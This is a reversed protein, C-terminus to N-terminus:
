AAQDTDEYRVSRCLYIGKRLSQHQVIPHAPRMSYNLTFVFGFGVVEEEGRGQRAGGYVKMDVVQVSVEAWAGFFMSLGVEAKLIEDM